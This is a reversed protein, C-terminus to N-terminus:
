PEVPMRPSFSFGFVSGAKTIEPGGWLGQWSQEVTGDSAVVLTIPTATLKYSRRVDASIMAVRLPVPLGGGIERLYEEIKAPDETEAVVGIIEFRERDARELMERWYAFQGRCYRCTPTFFLLVRKPGHEDYSVSLPEGGLGTASFPPLKDGAHLEDPQYRSLEARLQLNQRILLLNAAAFSLLLLGVAVAPLKQRVNPSM